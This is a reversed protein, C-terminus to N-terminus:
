PRSGRGGGSAGTGAERCASELGGSMPTAPWVREHTHRAANRPGYARRQWPPCPAPTRVWVQGSKERSGASARCVAEHRDRRLLALQEAGRTREVREDVVLDLGSVWRAVHGVRAPVREVSLQTGRAGVDCAKGGEVAELREAVLLAQAPGHAAELDGVGRLVALDDSGELAVRGELGPPGRDRAAHGDLVDDLALDELEGDFALVQAVQELHDGVLCLAIGHARDRGVVLADVVLPAREDLGREGRGRVERDGGGLEADREGGLEGCRVRAM